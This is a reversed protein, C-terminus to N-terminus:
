SGPRRSWDDYAQRSMGVSELAEKRSIGMAFKADVELVQEFRKRRIDQLRQEYPTKEGLRPLRSRRSQPVQTLREKEVETSERLEWVAVLLPHDPQFQRLASELAHNRNLVMNRVRAELVNLMTTIPQLHSPNQCHPVTCKHHIEPFDELEGPFGAHAWAVVRHVLRRTKGRGIYAYDRGDKNKTKRRGRLWLWCSDPDSPDAWTRKRIENLFLEWDKTRISREFDGFRALRAEANPPTRPKRKPAPNLGPTLPGNSSEM